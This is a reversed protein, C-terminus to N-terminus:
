GLVGIHCCLAVKEMNCSPFQPLSLVFSKHATVWFAQLIDMSIHTSYIYSIWSNFKGTPRKLKSFIGTQQGLGSGEKRLWFAGPSHQSWPRDKRLAPTRLSCSSGGSTLKKKTCIWM